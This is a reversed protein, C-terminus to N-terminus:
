FGYLKVPNDALIRNRAAEDPVWDLLIDLQTVDDQRDKGVYPWNSAWIMREPHSKAAAKALAGVDPYLPPGAKSVEYAATLKLWTKGNDLLRQLTKFGPHEVTVPELFKGVHDIVVTGPLRKLLDERDALLRGDMQVQAHWGFAAVRAALPEVAEWPLAGGPMMQFRIGRIGAKTLRDLEADTVSMDVVAVGRANELGLEAIAAVTVRNDAGYATPQVIIARELGLRKQVARYGAVTAWDPGPTTASPIMPMAPDYIHIHCDCTRPPTKLRPTSM